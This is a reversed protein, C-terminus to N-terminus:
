VVKFGTALAYIEKSRSRSAKPKRMVVKTFQGRLTQLYEQFGEGQFLKVLMAGGPKLTGKSLELTLDALYMARAIDVIKVGSMNPAMDSFVLDAPDSNLVTMLEALVHDERFDGQIFEVGEIEPEILLLDLAIVRGNGKLLEAAYQSWGGPAAGLDIITMGPKILKDKENIEKLKYVARSRYGEVQ